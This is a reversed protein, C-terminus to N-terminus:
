QEIQTMRRLGVYYRRGTTDKLIEHSNVGKANRWTIDMTTAGKGIPEISIIETYSWYVQKYYGRACSSIALMVLLFLTIFVIAAIKRM